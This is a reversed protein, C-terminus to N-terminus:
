RKLLIRPSSRTKIASTTSKTQNLGKTSGESTTSYSSVPAVDKTSDETTCKSTDKAAGKSNHISYSSAPSTCKTNDKSAGKNTGKATHKASYTAPPDTHIHIPTVSNIAAKTVSTRATAARAVTRSDATRTILKPITSSAPQNRQLRKERVHRYMVESVPSIDVNTIISTFNVRKQSPELASVKTLSLERVNVRDQLDDSICSGRELRMEGVRGCRNQRLEEDHSSGTIEGTNSVYGEKGDKACDMKKQLIEGTHCDCELPVDGDECQVTGCKKSSNIDSPVRNLPSPSTDPPLGRRRRSLRLVRPNEGLPRIVSGNTLPIQNPTRSSHRGSNQLSSFTKPNSYYNSVTRHHLPLHQNRPLQHKSHRSLHNNNTEHLRPKCTSSPRTCPRPPCRSGVGTRPKLTPVSRVCSTRQESLGTMLAVKNTRRVQLSLQPPRPLHREAGERRDKEEGERRRRQQEEERRERDRRRQARATLPCFSRVVASGGPRGRLSRSDQQVTSRSFISMNKGKTATRHNTSLCSTLYQTGAPEKARGSALFAMSSPLAASGRLCLFSLFDETKPRRRTLCTVMALNHSHNSQAPTMLVPSGPSSPPSQAFKRQAQVKPRKSAPDVKHRHISAPCRQQPRTQLSWSWSPSASLLSQCQSIGNVLSGSLSTPTHSRLTRAPAPPSLLTQTNKVSHKNHTTHTHKATETYKSNLLLLTNQTKHSRLTRTSESNQFMHTNEQQHTQPVTNTVKGACMKLQTQMNQPTQTCKNKPTHSDQSLNSIQGKNTHQHPRLHKSIDTNKASHTNKQTNPPKHTVRQQPTHVSQRTSRKKETHTKPLTQTKRQAHLLTNKSTRKHARTHIQSHKRTARHTDRFERLSLFLVKRVLREECWPMGDSIDYKKKIINRKPRDTSM